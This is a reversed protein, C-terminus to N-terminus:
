AVTASAALLLQVRDVVLKPGLEIPCGLVHALAVHPKVFEGEAHGITLDFRARGARASDALSAEVISRKLDIERTARKKAVQVPFTEARHFAELADEAAERTLGFAALDLDLAFRSASAAADLSDATMDIEEAAVFKLGEISKANLRALFEEPDVRETLVVDTMEALGGVGLPLPPAFAIRPKPNFGESYSLPARARRMTMAITKALDLHALYRLVGLKTFAIRLRQAREPEAYRHQPTAARRQFRTFVEEAGADDREAIRERRERYRNAAARLMSGEDPDELSRGEDLRDSKEKRSRIVSEGYREMGDTAGPGDRALIHDVTDGCAVCGACKGIACDEMVRLRRSRRLDAWLFRKGLNSDLHDFPLVEDEDRERNAYWAPDIGTEAFARMWLDFRFYEEWGDFRCGLEWARELAAAVRRDARALVAEVFAARTDATRVDINRDRLQRRVYQYRRELEAPEPQAEWQFPTNSKPVFPSLTVNVVAKRGHHRRGIEAAHRTARVIGDLDVDTETPLGLM